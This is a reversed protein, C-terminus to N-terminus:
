DRIDIKKFKKLNIIKKFYQNHLTYHLGVEYSCIIFHFYPLFIIFFINYGLSERYSNRFLLFQAESNTSHYLCDPWQKFRIDHNGRNLSPLM